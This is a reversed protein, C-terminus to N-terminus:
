KTHASWRSQSMAKISPRGTMLGSCGQPRGQVSVPDSGSPVRVKCETQHGLIAEAGSEQARPPIKPNQAQSIKCRPGVSDPPNWVRHGGRWELCARFREKAGSRRSM